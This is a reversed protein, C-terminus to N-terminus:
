FLEFTLHTVMAHREFSLLWFHLLNPNDEDLHLIPGDVGFFHSDVWQGEPDLIFAYYPSNQTLNAQVSELGEYFPHNGIGMPYKFGKNYDEIPM